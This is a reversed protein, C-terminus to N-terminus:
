RILCAYREYEAPYKKRLKMLLEDYNDGVPCKIVDELNHAFKTRKCVDEVQETEWVASAISCRLWAFGLEEFVGLRELDDALAFLFQLDPLRDKRTETLSFPIGTRYIYLPEKIAAIRTAKALLARTFAFDAGRKVSEL